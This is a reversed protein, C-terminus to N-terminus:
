KIIPGVENGAGKTSADSSQTAAEGTRLSAKKM